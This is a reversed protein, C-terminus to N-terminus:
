PRNPNVKLEFKRKVKKVRPGVEEKVFIKVNVFDM